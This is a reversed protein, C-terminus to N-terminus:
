AYEAILSEAPIGLNRHLKRIMPLTLSRKGSLVEYVRNPQGISPVLDKVTLGGQEMRFKIAEIPHPAEVPYHKAEYAEVLTLLVEFRDGEPTGPEPEDDFYASLEKLSAKYDEHTHIPRIRM